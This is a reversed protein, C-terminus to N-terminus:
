QGPHQRGEHDITYPEPLILASVPVIEYGANAIAELIDPLAAPTNQAGSHFLLISGNQLKGMIREQM